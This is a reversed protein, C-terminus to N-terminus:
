VGPRHHLHVMAIQPDAVSWLRLHHDIRARCDFSITKPLVNRSTAMIRETNLELVGRPFREAANRDITLSIVNKAKTRPQLADRMLDSALNPELLVDFDDSEPRCEVNLILCAQGHLHDHHVCM